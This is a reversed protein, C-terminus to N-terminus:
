QNLLSKAYETLIDAKPSCAYRLPDKHVQYLIAYKLLDQFNDGEFKPLLELIFLLSKKAIQLQKICRDIDYLISPQMISSGMRYLIVGKYNLATYLSGILKADAFIKLTEKGEFDGYHYFLAAVDHVKTTHDLMQKILTDAALSGHESLFVIQKELKLKGPYEFVDRCCQYLTRFNQYQMRAKVGNKYADLNKSPEVPTKIWVEEYFYGQLTLTTVSPKESCPDDYDKPIYDSIYYGENTTLKTHTIKVSDLIPSSKQMSNECSTYRSIIDKVLAPWSSKDNGVYKSVFTLSFRRECKVKKGCLLNYFEPFDKKPEPSKIAKDLYGWLVPFNKCSNNLPKPHTSKLPNEESLADKPFPTHTVYCWTRQPYNLERAELTYNLSIPTRNLKFESEKINRKCIVNEKIPKFNKLFEENNKLSEFFRSNLFDRLAYTDNTYQQPSDAKFKYWDKIIRSMCELGPICEDMINPINYLEKIRKKSYVYNWIAIGVGNYDKEGNELLIHNLEAFLKNPQKKTSEIWEFFSIGSMSISCIKKQIHNRFFLQAVDKKVCAICSKAFECYSHSCVNLVFSLSDSEQNYYSDKLELDLHRRRGQEADMLNKMAM